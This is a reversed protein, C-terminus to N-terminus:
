FCTICCSPNELAGLDIHNEFMQFSKSVGFLWKLGVNDKKKLVYIFCQRALCCSKSLIIEHRCSYFCTILLCFFVDPLSIQQHSSCMLFMFIRKFYLFLSGAAVKYRTAMVGSCRWIKQLLTPSFPSGFCGIISKVKVDLKVFVPGAQQDLLLTLIM